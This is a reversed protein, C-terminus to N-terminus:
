DNKHLIRGFKRRPKGCRDGETSTATRKSIKKRREKEEAHNKPLIEDGRAPRDEIRRPMRM